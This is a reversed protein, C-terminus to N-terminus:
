FAGQKEINQRCHICYRAHPKIKLRELDISEECLECIGYTKQQIKALSKAIENLEQKLNFSITQEIQSSTNITSFDINDNPESNYLDQIEKSNNDLQKLVLEQRQKLLKQFFALNKDM